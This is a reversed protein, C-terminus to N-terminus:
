FFFKSVIELTYNAINSFANWLAMFFCELGSKKSNIIKHSYKSLNLKSFLFNLFQERFGWQQTAWFLNPLIIKWTGNFGNWAIIRETDGSFMLFGTTKQHKWPTCFYVLPMFHSLFWNTISWVLKELYYYHSRMTRLSFATTRNYSVGKRVLERWVLNGKPM